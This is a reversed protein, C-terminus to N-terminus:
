QNQLRRLYYLVSMNSSLSLVFMVMVDELSKGLPVNIFTVNPDMRADTKDSIGNEISTLGDINIGDSSQSSVPSM